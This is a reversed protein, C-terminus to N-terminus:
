EHDIWELLVAAVVASLRVGVNINNTAATHVGVITWPSNKNDDRYFVPAGAQGPGADAFHLLQYMRYPYHRTSKARWLTSVPKDDPYGAVYFPIVSNFFAMSQAVFDMPDVPVARDLRVMGIDYDDDRYESWGKMLIATEGIFFEHPSFNGNVNPRFYISQAWGKKGLICHGATLVHRPSVLTGTCTYYEGNVSGILQGIAPSADRRADEVHMRDDSGIVVGSWLDFDNSATSSFQPGQVQQPRFDLPAVGADLPRIETELFYFGALGPSAGLVLLCVVLGIIRAM